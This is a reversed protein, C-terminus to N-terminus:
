IHFCNRWLPDGIRARTDITLQRQRRQTQVLHAGHNLDLHPSAGPADATPSSVCGSPAAACAPPTTTAGDVPNPTGSSTRVSLALLEGVPVAPATLHQEILGAALFRDRLQEPRPRGRVLVPTRARRPGPQVPGRHLHRPAPM